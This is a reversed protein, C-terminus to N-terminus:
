WISSKITLAAFPIVLRDFILEANRGPVLSM